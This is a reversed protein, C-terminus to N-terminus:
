SATLQMRRPILDDKMHSLLVVVLSKTEYADRNQYDHAAVVVHVCCSCCSASDRFFSREVCILYNSVCCYSEIVNIQAVLVSFIGFTM